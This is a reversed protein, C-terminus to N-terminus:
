SRVIMRRNDPDERLDSILNAVQDVGYKGGGSFESGWSRWQHGYIRGLEGLENAWEDWITVGKENLSKITTEGRLFWLLEEIVSKLHIAKGTLFPMTGASLDFSMCVGPKKVTRIGTRNEEWEGRHAINGLSALHRIYTSEFPNVFTYNTSVRNKSM